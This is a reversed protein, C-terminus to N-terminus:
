SIRRLVVYHGKIFFDEEEVDPWKERLARWAGPQQARFLSTYPSVEVALFTRRFGYQDFLSLYERSSRKSFLGLPVYRGGGQVDESPNLNRRFFDQYEETNLLLHNFAAAL